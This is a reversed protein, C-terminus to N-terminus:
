ALIKMATVLIVVIVKSHGTEEATAGCLVKSKDAFM